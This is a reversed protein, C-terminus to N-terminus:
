GKCREAAANEGLPLYDSSSTQEWLGRLADADLELPFEESVPAEGVPVELWATSGTGTVSELGLKGGM